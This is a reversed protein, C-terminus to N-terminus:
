VVNPPGNYFGTWGGNSTRLPLDAFIYNRPYGGTSSGSPIDPERLLRASLGSIVAGMSMGNSMTALSKRRLAILAIGFQSNIRRHRSTRIAAM